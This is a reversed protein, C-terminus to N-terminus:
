GWDKWKQRCTPRRPDFRRTGAATSSSLMICINNKTESKNNTATNANQKEMLRSNKSMFRGHKPLVTTCHDASNGGMSVSRPEFGKQTSSTHELGTQTEEPYDPKRVYVSLM